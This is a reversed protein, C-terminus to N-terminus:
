ADSIIKEIEKKVFGSVNELTEKERKTFRGLVFSTVSKTGKPKKVAGRFRALIGVRIRFFAGSKLSRFISLVGKHGAAGRDFSVKYSGIPLDLEDHIVILRSLESMKKIFARVTKGSENMFVSPRVLLVPRNGIEGESVLANKKSDFKWSSFNCLEKIHELVILGTNHRTKEYEKDPNGLGVIVFSTPSMYFSHLM